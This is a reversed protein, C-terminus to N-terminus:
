SAALTTRLRSSFQRFVPMPVTITAVPPDGVTLMPVKKWHLTAQEIKRFDDWPILATKRWISVYLGEDAIGVTVCRKYVVAGIKLTERPAISGAPPNVTSYVAVLRRWGGKSGDIRQVLAIIAYVMGTILVAVAIVGMVILLVIQWTNM